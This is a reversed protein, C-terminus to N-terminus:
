APEKYHARFEVFDARLEYLESHTAKIESNMRDLRIELAVFRKETEQRFARLEAFISELMPQTDAADPMKQTPDESSM